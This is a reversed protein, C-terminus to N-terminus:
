YIEQCSGYWTVDHNFMTPNHIKFYISIYKTISINTDGEDCTKDNIKWWDLILDCILYSKTDKCIQDPLKLCILCVNM